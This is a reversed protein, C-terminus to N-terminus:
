SGGHKRNCDESFHRNEHLWKVADLHGNRAAWDMANTTCGEQRNEHLWNVVDLHGEEAAYDMAGTTCGEQRNEHLWKVVDLHGEEAAYDMAGTTCGEQRNEHLWKMVDLHGRGAAWNMADITCGEQRNEHLWKVVELHGKRVAWTMANDFFFGQNNLWQLLPLDKTEVAQIVTSYNYGQIAYHMLWARLDRDASTWRKPLSMRSLLQRKVYENGLSIAISVPCYHLIRDITETPLPQFHSM